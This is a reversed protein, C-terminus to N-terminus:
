ACNQCFYHIMHTEDERSATYLELEENKDNLLRGIGRFRDLSDKLDYHEGALTELWVSGECADIADLFCQLQQENVIKM